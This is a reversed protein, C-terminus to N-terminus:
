FRWIYEATRDRVKNLHVFMPIAGFTVFFILGIWFLAFVVEMKWTSVHRFVFLLYNLAM